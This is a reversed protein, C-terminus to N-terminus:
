NKALADTSYVRTVAFKGEADRVILFFAGDHEGVPFTAELLPTDEGAYVTKANRIDAHYTISRAPSTRIHVLGDEYTLEEILPAESAYFDGKMLSAFVDAYALSPSKIMTFGGFSDPMRNHNDDAAVAFPRKGGRMMDRLVHLSEDLFGAYLSGYNVVELAHFGDYAMYEPYTELSWAPHNYTVFFGAERATAIARNIGEASYERVFDPAAEDYRVLPLYEPKPGWHYAKRHWLPQYNDCMTPALLCLHCSRKESFVTLAPDPDTVDYEFGTMPLFDADALEPHPVMLNHDTFAVIAYGKEKYRAKIEEPTLAGDSITSHTHLNAKYFRGEAPLLYHKM